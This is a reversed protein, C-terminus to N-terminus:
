TMSRCEQMEKEGVGPPLGEAYLLGCSEYMLLPSIFLPIDKEQALKVTNADPMKNRVFCIAVLDLIEAARIVQTNTLGTLLLPKRGTFTLLDSILDSAYCSEVERDACDACAINWAKKANLIRTVEKLKM